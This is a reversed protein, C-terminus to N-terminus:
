TTSQQSRLWKNYWHERKKHEPDLEPHFHKLRALLRATGIKCNALFKIGESNDFPENRDM